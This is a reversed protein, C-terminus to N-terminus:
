EAPTLFVDLDGEVMWHDTVKGNVVQSYPRHQLLRLIWLLTGPRSICVCPTAVIDDSSPLDDNGGKSVM